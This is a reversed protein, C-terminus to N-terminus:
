LQLGARCGDIGALEALQIDDVAAFHQESRGEDEVLAVDFIKIELRLGRRRTKSPLRAPALNRRHHLAVGEFHEKLWAARGFIARPMVGDPRLECIQQM